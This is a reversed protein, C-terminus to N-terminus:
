AWAAIDALARDSMAKRKALTKDTARWRGVLGEPKKVTV